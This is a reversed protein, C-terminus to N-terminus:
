SKFYTKVKATLSTLFSIIAVLIGIYAKAPLAILLNVAFMARFGIVNKKLIFFVLLFFSVIYAIGTYVMYIPNFGEISINKTVFVFYFIFPLFM